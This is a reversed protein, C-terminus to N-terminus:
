LTRVTIVISERSVVTVTTGVPITENHESVARWEDGDIKVYGHGGPQITEIVQGTRGILADANSRRGNGRLKRVLSPRLFIVCFVSAAAMLLVQMWLPMCLLAAVLGVLAGLAFCLVYLDGSGLEVLLCLFSVTLWLLWLHNIM